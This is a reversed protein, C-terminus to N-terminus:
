CIAKKFIVKENGDVGEDWYKSAVKRFGPFALIEFLEKFNIDWRTYGERRFALVA